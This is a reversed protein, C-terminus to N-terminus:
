KITYLKFKSYNRHLIYKKKKTIKVKIQMTRLFRQYSIWLIKKLGYILYFIIIVFKNAEIKM